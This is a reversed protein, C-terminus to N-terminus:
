EHADGGNLWNRLMQAAIEPNQETFDRVNQRLEMGKDNSIDVLEERPVAASIPQEGALIPEAEPIDGAAKRKKRILIFAVIGGILLLAAVGAIIRITLPTVVVGTRTDVEDALDSQYFPTSVVSIKNAQNETSIGAANGITTRLEEITLDGFDEGNIVVSMTLDELAGAPVQGQEKIHNVLYERDYTQSNYANTDGEGDGANYEPVDANADTGATGAAGAASSSSAEESGSENSILGSKDNEDIKEPTSYNISERVLTEMNIKAKSSVRVNNNGYIPELVALVKRELQSEVVQAIEEGDQASMGGNEDSRVSVDNGNGDFVAVNEITMGPISKSVLNQVAAAQDKSPSGGDQMVMVVSASAEEQPSDDLAYKQTEGLAITVKSDKVGDFLSITAGIRNQLDYIKYTRKDEDTTMMGANATFVDYTFGSKPYGESALQAKVQNVQNSPVKITGTTGDYQYEIESDQLKGVIQTAEDANVSQFLVEYTKHNLILAAIVAGAILVVLGVGAFIKTKKSLNGVYEKFQGLKEKM